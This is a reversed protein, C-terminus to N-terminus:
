FNREMLQARRGEYGPKGLLAFMNRKYAEVGPQDFPNVGLLYGSLGCAREFFYVMYGFHYADAQDIEFVVNATGGDVHALVTGEFAKRNVEQVSKGALFDLDEEPDPEILLEYKPNKVWLVTEFITRAGDQIFQGVSHLDTTFSANVPFLGKHSKGESEAFLQTFWQGFAALGPEYNALVEINIGKRYLCNRVAAYYLCNNQRIDNPQCAAYSDRAGQMVKRIDVGAVAMPLLGVPTLVSFRGGIDRPIEFTAYGEREAARKLTGEERDTTVFIRRAAEAKGYRDELMKKFFHFAVAPETTTGSKSIVNVAFEKGAVIEMVDHLYETSANNGVFYIDPTTKGPRSNYFPSQIFEIGARAGLYSGGIGIVLFVSCSRQITEATNRIRQLLEEDQAVPLNVWGLYDKGAGTKSRLLENCMEVMLAINLIEEDQVFPRIGGTKLIMAM